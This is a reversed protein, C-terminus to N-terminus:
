RRPPNMSFSSRPRTSTRPTPAGPSASARMGSGRWWHKKKRPLALRRLLRSMTAVSLTIGTQAQWARCHEALTADPRAHVQAVLLPELAPPVRRPPGPRPRTALSGRERRWRRWRYISAESVAFLRVAEAVSLGRDLASLVLERVAAPRHPRQM